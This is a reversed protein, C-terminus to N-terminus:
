RTRGGESGAERRNGLGPREPYAGQNRLRVRAPLVFHNLRVILLHLEAELQGDGLDVPRAANKAPLGFQQDAVVVSAGRRSRIRRQRHDLSLARSASTLPKTM